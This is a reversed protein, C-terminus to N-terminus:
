IIVPNWSSVTCTSSIEEGLEGNKEVSNLPCSSMPMLSSFLYPMAANCCLLM